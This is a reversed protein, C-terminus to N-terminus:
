LLRSKDKGASAAYVNKKYDEENIIAVTSPFTSINDGYRGARNSKYKNQATSNGNSTLGGFIPEM